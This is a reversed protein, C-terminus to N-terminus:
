KWDKLLSKKKDLLMLNAKSQLRKGCDSCKYGQFHGSALRRVEYPKVNLSGCHCRLKLDNYYSALNQTKIWGRVNMYREETSLVDYKCYTEMAKWAKTEDRMCAKWLEFGPYEKHDLKKYKENRETKYALKHSTHGFVAREETLIDTIKPSSFPPLKHFDARSAIKRIDFKKVNQGIVIDAQNMLKIVEKVLRKDDFVDKRGRNDMYITQNDPTGVWHAAWACISWDRKLFDLTIYQEGLGWSWTECPFNEIDLCLIRPENTNNM